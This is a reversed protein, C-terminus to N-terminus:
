HRHHHRRIELTPPLPPKKDSASVPTVGSKDRSSQPRNLSEATAIAKYSTLPLATNRNRKGKRALPTAYESPQPPPPLFPLQHLYQPLLIFLPYLIFGLKVGGSSIRMFLTCGNNESQKDTIQQPKTCARKRHFGLLYMSM